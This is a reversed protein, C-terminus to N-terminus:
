RLFFSVVAMAALLVGTLVLAKGAFTQFFPVSRDIPRITARTERYREAAELRERALTAGDAVLPRPGRRPMGTVSPDLALGSKPLPPPESRYPAPSAQMGKRQRAPVANVIVDRV